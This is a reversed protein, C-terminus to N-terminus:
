NVELLNTSYLSENNSYASEITTWNNYASGMTNSYGVYTADNLTADNLTPIMKSYGQLTPIQEKIIELPLTSNIHKIVIDREYREESILKEFIEHQKKQESTLESLLVNAPESIETIETIKTIEIDKSDKSDNSDNGDKSDGNFDSLLETQEVAKDVYNLYQEIARDINNFNEFMIRSMEAPTIKYEETTRITDCNSDSLSVDYFFELMQVITNYSCCKFKAIIDIRGPRILATDLSDPYNSTMIVIRGPMELVGDLLNLLFSLDIQHKDDDATPLRNLDSRQKVIDSQCDIDELVYIRQDLPICFPEGSELQVMENFFLNELQTKTIDNNLNINFVHRSTENALCKITSTKGTGPKGSLLLGLSYPIGKEDYWGKNNVFFNVRNKIVDIDEGFLNSFKRNTSFRKMTFSMQQPLRSYDKKTSGNMGMMKMANKPMMNFYCKANGLKNKQALVYNNKTNELFTRLEDVTKGFSYIELQQIPMQSSSGSSSSGTNMYSTQSESENSQTMIAYIDSQIEIVDKQNLMYNKNKYSVHLTNRSNTVYDMLAQGIVNDQDGVRITLTISSKKQKVINNITVTTNLQQAYKNLNKSVYTTYFMSVIIPLYKMVFDIIQTAVLLYISEYMGTQGTSNMSKMMFMTTMQSKILDMFNGNNSIHQPSNM